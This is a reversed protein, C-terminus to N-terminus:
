CNTQRICVTKRKQIPFRLKTSIYLIAEDRTKIHACDFLLQKIYIQASPYSVNILKMIEDDQVFGLAKFVVGACIVDINPLSFYMSRGEKPFLVRILVSYGTESNTRIECIYKYKESVTESQQIVQICNYKLHMQPILVREVGGLIFYGGQDMYCEGLEVRDRENKNYLNCIVSGVMVPIYCLNVRNKCKIEKLAEDEYVKTIIDVFVPASYNLDRERVEKPYIPRINRDENVIHPTDIFVKGFSYEYRGTKNPPMDIRKVVIDPIDAMIKQIEHTVFFNYSDLQIHVLGYSKIFSELTRYTQTHTHDLDNKCDVCHTAHTNKNIDCFTAVNIKCVQCSM